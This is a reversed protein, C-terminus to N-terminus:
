PTISFLHSPALFNTKVLLPVSGNTILVAFPLQPHVTGVHGLSGIAGPSDPSIPTLYSVLLVPLNVFVIVNVVLASLFGTIKVILPLTLGGGFSVCVKCFFFEPAGNSFFYINFFYQTKLM